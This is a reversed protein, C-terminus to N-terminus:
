ANGQAELDLSKAIDLLAEAVRAHGEQKALRWVIQNLEAVTVTDNAQLVKITRAITRQRVICGRQELGSLLKHVGSKSRLKLADAMEQFSPSIGGSDDQYEVIFTLLERQKPTM